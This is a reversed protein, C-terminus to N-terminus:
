ASILTAGIQSYHAARAIHVLDAIRAGTLGYHDAHYVALDRAFEPSPSGVRNLEDLTDVVARSFLVRENFSL